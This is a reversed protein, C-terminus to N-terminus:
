RLAKQITAHSCMVSHLSAACYYMASDSAELAKIKLSGKKTGDGDLDIKQMFNDEPFYNKNWIYGLLTFGHNAQTQKYWLIINYSSIIVASENQNKLLDNPSQLVTKAHNAATWSSLYCQKFHTTNNSIFHDNYYLLLM